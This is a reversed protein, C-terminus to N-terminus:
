SFKKTRARVPCRILQNYGFKPFDNLEDFEVEMSFKMHISDFDLMVGLVDRGSIPFGHLKISGFVIPSEVAMKDVPQGLILKM